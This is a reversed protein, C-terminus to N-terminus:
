RLGRGEPLIETTASSEDMQVHSNNLKYWFQCFEVSILRTQAGVIVVNRTEINLYASFTYGDNGADVPNWNDNTNLGVPLVIGTCNSMVNAHALIEIYESNRYINEKYKTIGKLTKNKEVNEKSIPLGTSAVLNPIFTNGRIKTLKINVVDNEKVPVYYMIVVIFFAAVTWICTNKWKRKM